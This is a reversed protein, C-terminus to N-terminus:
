RTLGVWLAGKALIYSKKKRLLKIFIAINMKDKGKIWMLNKGGEIKITNGDSKAHSFM